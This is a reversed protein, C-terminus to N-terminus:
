IITTWVCDQALHRLYRIFTEQNWVHSKDQARDIVVYKSLEDNLRSRVEESITGKRYSIWARSLHGDIWSLTTITRPVRWADVMAAACAGGQVAPEKVTTQLVKVSPDPETLPLDLTREINHRIRRMLASRVLPDDVENKLSAKKQLTKKNPRFTTSWCQDFNGILREHVHGEQALRQAQVRVAELQHHQFPLHAGPKDNSRSTIGFVTCLREAQKRPHVGNFAAPWTPFLYIYIYIHSMYVWINYIYIYTRLLQKDNHIYIYIYTHISICKHMHYKKVLRLATGVNRHGCSLLRFCGFSQSNRKPIYIAIEVAGTWVCNSFILQSLLTFGIQCIHAGSPRWTQLPIFRTFHM